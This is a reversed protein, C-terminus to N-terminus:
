AGLGNARLKDFPREKKSRRLLSFRDKSLSLVFPFSFLASLGEV